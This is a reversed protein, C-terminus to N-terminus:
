YKRPYSGLVKVFSSGKISEIADKIKKDAKNGEFDIFFIYDGLKGKSPRSEIKTLNIKRDAFEGLLDHLLGPRDVQPYIAISTRDKMSKKGDTEAIVFFRTTNFKSDQIDSDIIKLKYIESAKKPIIAARTKDNKKTLIEASKGNSSTFIIEAKPYHERLHKACQEVAQVHAYIKTINDKNIGVL